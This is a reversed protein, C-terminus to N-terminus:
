NEVVARTAKDAASQLSSNGQELEISNALRTVLAIQISETRSWDIKAYSPIDRVLQKLRDLYEFLRRADDPKLSKKGSLCQGLTTHSMLGTIKSLNNTDLRLEAMLSLIRGENSLTGVM